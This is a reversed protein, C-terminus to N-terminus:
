KIRKEDTVYLKKFLISNWDKDKKYYYIKGETSLIDLLPYEKLKHVTSEKLSIEKM